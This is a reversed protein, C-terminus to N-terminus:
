HIGMLYGSARASAGTYGRCGGTVRTYGGSVGVSLGINYHIGEVVM